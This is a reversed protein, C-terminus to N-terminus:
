ADLKDLIRGASTISATIPSDAKNYENLHSDIPKSSSDKQSRQTKGKSVKHKLPTKLVIDVFNRERLM